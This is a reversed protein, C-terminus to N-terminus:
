VERGGEEVDGLKREWWEGWRVVVGERRAEEAAFVVAHSRVVEELDCGVFTRQAEDVEWGWNVVKDVADVFGRALGYDGGGHAKEEEPNPPRPVDITRSSRTQFDYITITRSDYTLEGATGYIRGRRECQKETAAIMHFLATKPHFTAGNNNPQAPSSSWTLTVTQSDLVSNDSEYVCRGYWPRSHIATEQEPTTPPPYDEALRAFLHSKPSNIDTNPPNSEDATASAARVVDEIDECVINVPWDIDGKELHMDHYIRVASYVCDREVPCALCNTAPGAKAPKRAKIFQSLVGSSSITSPLHHPARSAANPAPSCMLWMIFDIDHCSKTLLSGDGTPTERRWNGRVYSHAFHWFGVPETHELSIIDGIVRDVLLLSRLLTNHPSYRLVHGISFINTSQNPTLIRYISLCDTLSLALPKECLIHLKLPALAHLISVHTSDLTCIFVGDVGIPTPSPTSTNLTSLTERRKLEWQLWDRWDAFEQGDQPTGDEGWIYSRGLFQRKFPHPEAVAHITGQTATTVARAYATGRSGAGIILFRLPRPTTLPHTRWHLPNRPILFGRRQNTSCCCPM